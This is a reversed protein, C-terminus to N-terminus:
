VTVMLAVCLPMVYRLWLGVGGADGGAGSIREVLMNGREEISREFAARDTASWNAGKPGPVADDGVFAIYLVDHDDHGENGNMRGGFCATALSISAEGVMPYEGDDGNTDGWVGYVLRDGCVVAMVSLPQIGVEEPDFTKWGKQSGQNGFVVYPHVYADLDRIGCDYSAITDKFTTQSQTDNSSGCRGDDAPGRQAGDCDIDM